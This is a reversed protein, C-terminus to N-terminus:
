SEGGREEQALRAQYRKEVGKLFRLYPEKYRPTAVSIHSREWRMIAECLKAVEPVDPYLEESVEEITSLLSEIDM